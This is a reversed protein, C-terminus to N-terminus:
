KLIIYKNLISRYVAIFWSHRMNTYRYKLILAFNYIKKNDYFDYIKILDIYKDDFLHILYLVYLINKINKIIKKHKYLIRSTSFNFAINNLFDTFYLYIDKQKSYYDYYINESSKLYRKLNNFYKENNHIIYYIYDMTLLLIHIPNINKIVYNQDQLIYIITFIISDDPPFDYYKSFKFLFNYLREITKYENYKKIHRILLGETTKDM